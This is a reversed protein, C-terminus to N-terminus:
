RLPRNGSVASKSGRLPTNSSFLWAASSKNKARTAGGSVGVAGTEGALHRDILIEETNCCQSCEPFGLAEEACLSDWQVNCCFTDIACVLAECIPSSCGTTPHPVCCDCAQVPTNFFRFAMDVDGAVPKGANDRLVGQYNVLAPASGAQALSAGITLGLLMWIMLINPRM